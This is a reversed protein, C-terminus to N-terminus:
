TEVGGRSRPGFPRGRASRGREAHDFGRAESPDNGSKPALGLMSRIASGTRSRARLELVQGLLVLVTITAAAEFYVGVTGNSEHFSPPFIGPALAAVLSYVYAAGTGLAILTFMNLSGHAVSAAGRRFFPFGGWLVVPTALALEFWHGMRGGLGSMALVVVVVTPAISWWFRRSMEVLEPNAPEGATVARPELAMGCIPCAGPAHRVMEPHMPCVYEAKSALTTPEAELAVGCKSCPGAHDQRVEAHM